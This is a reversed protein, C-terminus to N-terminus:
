VQSHPFTLTLSSEHKKVALLSNVSIPFLPHSLIHSPLTQDTPPQPSLFEPQSIYNRITESGSIDPHLTPM